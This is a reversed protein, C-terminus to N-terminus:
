TSIRPGFEAANVDAVVWPVATVPNTEQIQQLVSYSATLPVVPAAFDAEAGGSRVRATATRFGADDKQQVFSQAVAFVRNTTTTLDSYQYTDYQAATNGFVTTTTDPQAENVSQWNTAAAGAKSFNTNTGAANPLLTQVRCDGLFDILGTGSDGELLYVDDFNTSVSGGSTGNLWGIRIQNAYANGSGSTNGSFTGLSVGNVRLEAYGASPDITSKLEVFYWLSGFALPSTTATFLTTGNRTVYWQQSSNIRVDVQATGGDFFGLQGLGFYNGAYVSPANFAVGMVVMRRNVFTKAIWQAPSGGSAGSTAINVGQGGAFRSSGSGWTAGSISSWKMSGSATALHDFGDVFLIGM